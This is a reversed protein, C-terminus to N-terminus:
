PEAQSPSTRAVPRGRRAPPALGDLVLALVGRRSREVTWRQSHRLQVYAWGAANFLVAASEVPDALSRLSRDAAGDALLKAFPAVFAEATPLAGDPEAAGHFVGTDAAFLGALVPLHRDAVDFTAHLAQVLRDHASAEGTLAPFLADKLEAAARLSLGALLGPISVGRRHLTMRSTGAADALRALTLGATGHQAVVTVAADLLAPDMVASTPERQTQNANGQGGMRM